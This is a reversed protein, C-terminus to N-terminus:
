GAKVEFPIRAKEWALVVNSGEIMFDMSEANETTMITKVIVRLVDKSPSYNYAGWQDNVSNFIVESSGPNNHTFLGYKGAALKKGEIKVDKSFEISTCENAGTRWVKGYPILGDLITRGKVYPSGYNITIEVGNISGTMEKRPSAPKDDLTKITYAKPKQDTTTETTNSKDATSTIKKTCATSGILLALVFLFLTPKGFFQSQTRNLM